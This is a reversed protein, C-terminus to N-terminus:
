AASGEDDCQEELDARASHGWRTQDDHELSGLSPERPDGDEDDSDDQERDDGPDGFGSGWGAATWGVSPEAGEDPERDADDRELLDLYDILDKVLERVPDALGDTLPTPM